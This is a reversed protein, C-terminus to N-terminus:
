ISSLSPLSKASIKGYSFHLLEQPALRPVSSLSNFFFSLFFHMEKGKREGRDSTVHLNWVWLSCSMTVDRCIWPDTPSRCHCGLALAASAARLPSQSPPSARGLLTVCLVAVQPWSHPLLSPEVTGVLSVVLLAGLLAVTTDSEIPVWCRFEELFYEHQFPSGHHNHALLALWKPYRGCKQFIELYKM